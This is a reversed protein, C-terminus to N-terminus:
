YTMNTEKLRVVCSLVLIKSFNFVSSLAGGLIFSALFGMKKMIEAIKCPNQQKKQNIHIKGQKQFPSMPTESWFLIM